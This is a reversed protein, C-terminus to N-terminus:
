MCRECDIFWQQAAHRAQGEAPIRRQYDGDPGMEWATCNDEEYTRLIAELEGRVRGDLVPVVLEMRRDLNRRMWDASGIYFEPEGGNEFRYIRGHELFRGLTSYVRINDSLGPVAARLSCLGRVNLQIPVGAQGARYLERIIEADQLQNLKGRIGAPRGAQAHEAERRILETFRQRLNHPSVLLPGYDAAPTAGTLENFLAEAGEALRPDCSLIGLDEYLRATGTHYNGTAVHLYHRLENGEERVVLALKVHTKLREMGYIVHVGARELQAGSAINPAEDFRATIEDLVAVQKGNRVAEMLADLIPSDRGTRYLTLKIALVKPDVAADQLFRLVSDDFSHYPLHILLDGRRIERFIAGPDHPDLWRLRPHTVPQHPPDRLEPRGEVKLDMLDALALPGEVAVTDDPSVGIQEALWRRLEKPMAADVQLRVVGAFKRFTLEATVMGILCGPSLESEEEDGVRDWPNDKAGRTVRFTHCELKAVGPFLADLNAAVLQELPVFGGEAGKGEHLPVWRPRNTPIKIRVFRPRKKGKENVLVALNLGLNAIFPFPHGADVALPTLIPKVSQLFYRRMAAQQEESLQDYDLIPLGAEALAPRLEEALLRSVEASQAWLEARALELEEAPTRGDVSIKGSGKELQRKLGGLRKMTFEDYLMGMIGAFKVRELLPQAPDLGFEMVRRAFHLWSLERNIFAQPSDIAPAKKPM